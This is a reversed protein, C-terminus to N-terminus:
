GQFQSGPLCASTLGWRVSICAIQWKQFGQSSWCTIFPGELFRSQDSHYMAVKSKHAGFELSQGREGGFGASQHGGSYIWLRSVGLARQCVRSAIM